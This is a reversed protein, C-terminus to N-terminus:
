GAVQLVIKGRTHGGMLMELAKPTEALPMVESVHPKIKGADVLASIERLVPAVPPMAMVMIGSCDFQAALEESPAQIVSLM